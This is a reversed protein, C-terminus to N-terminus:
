RLIVAGASGAASHHTAEITLSSLRSIGADLGSAYNYGIVRGNPYTMSTLRSHNASSAMETYAYIVKPSTSTNVAGSHSQYEKTLQGLGNFERQVQNVITGSSAADYSTFLYANGATDYATELRLVANDVGSGLTTVADITLRGLVDLTYTHTSGNHDAYTLREGQKNVTYTEKDTSSPLGTTKDPWRVEALVDNSNIGSGGGTTVGYVYQTKQLGGEAQVAVYAVMRGYGDYVFETTEDDGASPVFDSYARITRVTRGQSDFDTKSVLGRPDKVTQVQQNEGGQSTTAM